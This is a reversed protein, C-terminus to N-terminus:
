LWRVLENWQIMVMPEEDTALGRDRRGTLVDPRAPMLHPRCVALEDRGDGFAFVVWAPINFLTEITSCADFKRRKLIVGEPFRQLMTEMTPKRSKIEFFAEVKEDASALYDSESFRPFRNFTWHPLMGQLRAAVFTEIERDSDTELITM